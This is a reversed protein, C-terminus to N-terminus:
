WRPNPPWKWLSSATPTRRSMGPTTIADGAVTRPTGYVRVVSPCLADSVKVGNGDYCRDTLDEPRNRVIKQAVTRKGEDAKLGVIALALAAAIAAARGAAKPTVAGAESRWLSVRAGAPRQPLLRAVIVLIFLIMGLWDAARAPLMARVEGPMMNWLALLQDPMLSLAAFLLSGLASVRVSWWRSAERWDIRTM